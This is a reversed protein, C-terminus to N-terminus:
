GTFSGGHVEGFVQRSPLPIEPIAKRGRKGQRDATREQQRSAGLRILRPKPVWPGARLLLPSPARCVGLAATHGGRTQGGKSTGHPRPLYDCAVFGTEEGSPGHFLLSGESSQLIFSPAM